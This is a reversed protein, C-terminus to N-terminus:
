STPEVNLTESPRASQRHRWALLRELSGLGSYLFVALLTLTGSIIIGVSTSLGLISVINVSLTFFVAGLVAGIFSGRGGSLAAGGLVAAAISSLAYGRGVTAHGVGVESALFLGAIAAFLGALVFARNEIFSVRVGNRKAAENRFGTARLELGSRTRRLWYDGVLAFGIIALISVPVFEIRTRLFSTLAPSIIGDPTERGFFALGQLLTLMAITAIITNIKLGNVLAANIAGVLLGSILCVGVGGVIGLGSAQMGVIYSLMVVICSMMSGVSIDLGRVMLVHFQAIAALAAPASALLIHRMNRTNLFVDSQTAAIGGVILTLIGLLVVPSWWVNNGATLFSTIRDLLGPDTDPADDPKKETKATLFSQVINKETVDDGTLEATIQGRSFVLVRDCLGALEMADSSNVVACCKDSLRTRIAQYIEHRSGADVGQTPEDILIAKAEDRFSRALVAKQQNGGSLSKITTEATATVVGFEKILAQSHASEGKPSIGAGSKFRDLMPLTMNERVSLDPFISEGARDSSLFVVGGASATAPNSFDVETGQCQISGTADDLGGLARLAERQGNGEAGAFGLIEGPRVAFTVGSFTGGTVGAAEFLMGAQGPGEQFSGKTPFEAGIEQGIMRTVLDKESVTGDIEFTGRIKGDRLITVRDALELIEPLRHSVYVIGTGAKTLDQIIKTLHKVGELDLTATPEDLLLVRPTSLLSKVIEVFQRKAPTLNGVFEHAGIELGFPDLQEQAWELMQRYSKGTKSAGLVLNEVVALERVLSDDQYVTALGLQRSLAPSAQTLPTGSITVAGSDAAITGSAIKMLTSKGSGNEGLIAHVEGAKCSFSIHDLAVVGPYTKTVNSLDLLVDSM